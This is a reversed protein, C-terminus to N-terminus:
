QDLKAKATRWTPLFSDMLQWFKQGHGPHLLHCMEHVVVYELCEPPYLALRTNICIRGTTPQCSGWRSKMNRFALKQVHVGLIPEWLEVLLPVTAAVVDRWMKKEDETALEATVQPSTALRQQEKLVFSRKKRIFAEVEAQPMYWPVSAQIHGDPAVVRIRLTKVRKRVLEVDFEDVSIYECSTKEQKRARRM